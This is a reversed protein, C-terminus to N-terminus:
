VSKPLKTLMMLEIKRLARPCCDVIGLQIVVIDPKIADIYFNIFDLAMKSTLGGLSYQYVNLESNDNSLIRPWTDDVM